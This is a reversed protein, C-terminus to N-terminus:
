RTSSLVREGRMEQAPAIYNQPAKIFADRCSVSCFFFVEDGHPHSLASSCAVSKGCVVDRVNVAVRLPMINWQYAVCNLCLSGDSNTETWEQLKRALENREIFGFIATGTAEHSESVRPWYGLRCAELAPMVLWNGQPTSKMEAVLRPAHKECAIIVVGQMDTSLFM